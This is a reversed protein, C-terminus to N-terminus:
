EEVDVVTYDTLQAVPSVFWQRYHVKVQKGSNMANNIKEVVSPDTVSFSFVNAMSTNNGKDDMVIKIGQQLLEGEWSKFVIGKNSFKTIVGVRTGNSYNPMCASAMLALICIIKKM